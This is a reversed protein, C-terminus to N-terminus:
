NNTLFFFAISVNESVCAVEVHLRDVWNKQALNIDFLQQLM